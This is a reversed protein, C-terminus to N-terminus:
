RFFPDNYGRSDSRSVWWGLLPQLNGVLGHDLPCLDLSLQELLVPIHASVPSDLCRDVSRRPYRRGRFNEEVQSPSTDEESRTPQGPFEDIAILQRTRSMVSFKLELPMGLPDFNAM